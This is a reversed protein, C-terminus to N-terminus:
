RSASSGSRTEARQRTSRRLLFGLFLKGACSIELTARETEGVLYSHLWLFPLAVLLGLAALVLATAIEAPIAGLGASGDTAMEGLAHAVGAITGLLGVLPATAGVTALVGLGQRMEARRQLTNMEIMRRAAAIESGSLPQEPGPLDLMGLMGLVGHLAAAAHSQPSDTLLREAAALNGDALAAAFHSGLRRTARRARRLQLLKRVAVSAAAASILLLALVVGWAISGMRVWPAVLSLEM